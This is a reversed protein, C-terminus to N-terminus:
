RLSVAHLEIAPASRADHMCQLESSPSGFASHSACSLPRAATIAAAFTCPGMAHEIDKCVSLHAGKKIGLHGRRRKSGRYQVVFSQVSMMHRDSDSGRNCSWTRTELM